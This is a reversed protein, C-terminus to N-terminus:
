AAAMDPPTYSAAPGISGAAAAGDAAPGHLARAWRDILQLTQLLLDAEEVRVTLTMLRRDELDLAGAQPGSLELLAALARRDAALEFKAAQADLRGAVLERLAAYTGAENRASLLGLPPPPPAAAAAAAAQLEAERLEAPGAQMVRVTALLAPSVWGPRLTGAFEYSQGGSTVPHAALVARKREAEATSQECCVCVCVRVCVRVCM